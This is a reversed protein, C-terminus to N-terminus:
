GDLVYDLVAVAALDLSSAAFYILAKRLSMRKQRRRPQDVDAKCQLVGHYVSRLCANFLYVSVCVTFMNLLALM